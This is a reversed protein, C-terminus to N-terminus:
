TTKPPPPPPPTPYPSGDELPAPNIVQGGRVAQRSEYVQVGILFLGTTLICSWLLRM